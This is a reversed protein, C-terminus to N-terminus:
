LRYLRSYSWATFLHCSLMSDFKHLSGLKLFSWPWMLDFNFLRCETGGILFSSWDRINVSIPFALANLLAKWFKKVMSSLEGRKGNDEIARLLTIGVKWICGSSIKFAHKPIFRLNLLVGSPMGVRNRAFVMVERRYGRVIMKLRERDELAIGDWHFSAKMTGIKLFPSRRM